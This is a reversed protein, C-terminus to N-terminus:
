GCFCSVNGGAQKTQEYLRSSRCLRYAGSLYAESELATKYSVITPKEGAIKIHKIVDDTKVRGHLTLCGEKMYEGLVDIGVGSVNPRLIYAHAIDAYGGVYNVLHACVAEFAEDSDLLSVIDTMIESKRLDHLMQLESSKSKVSEALADDRLYAGRYMKTTIQRLFDLSDEFDRERIKAHINLLSDTDNIEEIVGCVIWCLCNVGGAKIAIGAIKVNSFGATEVVQDETNSLMVRDYIQQMLESPIVAKIREKEVLDGSLRTVPEGRDDLLYLYLHTMDAYYDQLKQLWEIDISVRRHPIVQSSTATETM